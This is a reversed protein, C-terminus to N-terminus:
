RCSKNRQLPAGDAGGQEAQPQPLPCAEVLAGEAPLALGEGAPGNAALALEEVLPGAAAISLKEAPLDEYDQKVAEVGSGAGPSFESLLVQGLLVQGQLVERLLVQGLAM